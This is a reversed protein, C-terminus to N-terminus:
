ENKRAQKRNRVSTFDFVALGIFGLGAIWCLPPLWWQAAVWMLYVLIAPGIGNEDVWTFAWVLVFGLVILAIGYCLRYIAQDSQNEDLADRFNDAM